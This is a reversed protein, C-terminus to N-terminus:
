TNDGVVDVAVAVQDVQRNCQGLQHASVRTLVHSLNNVTCQLLKADAWTCYAVKYKVVGRAIVSCNYRKRLLHAEVGGVTTEAAAGM